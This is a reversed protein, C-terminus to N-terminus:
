PQCGQYWRGPLYVEVNEGGRKWEDFHRNEESIPYILARGNAEIQLFKSSTMHKCYVM